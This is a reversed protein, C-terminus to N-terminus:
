KCTSNYFALGRNKYDEIGLKTGLYMLRLGKKYQWEDTPDITEIETLLRNAEEMWQTTNMLLQRREEENEAIIQRDIGERLSKNLDIKRSDPEPVQFVDNGLM